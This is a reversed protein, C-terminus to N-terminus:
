CSSRKRITLRTKGEPTFAERFIYIRPQLFKPLPTSGSRRRNAVDISVGRPSQECFRRGRQDGSAPGDLLPTGDDLCYALTNDVYDRM